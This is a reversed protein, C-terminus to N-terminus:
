AASAGASKRAAVKDLMSSIKAGQTHDLNDQLGRDARASFAPERLHEAIPAIERKKGDRKTFSAMGKNDPAVGGPAGSTGSVFTELTKPSGKPTKTSADEEEYAKKAREFEVRAANALDAAEKARGVAALAESQAIKALLMEEAAKKSFRNPVGGVSGDNAVQGAAGGGGGGHSAEAPTLTQAKTGSDQTKGKDPSVLIEPGSVEMTSHSTAAMKPILVALHELSAAFKMAEKATNMVSARKESPTATPPAVVPAEPAASATKTTQAGEADRASAIKTGADDLASKVLESLKKM